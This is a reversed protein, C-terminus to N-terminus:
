RADGKPFRVKDPTANLEVVVRRLIEDRVRGARRPEVLYRVIAELWTNEAVRFRVVPREQVELQDVATRALLERYVRVERLMAEGVVDTAVRRMTAAVHELDADYGIQVKVESWIYPFLPWSYNYVPQSLVTANPLRILIGSPHDGSLYRGGFEWLTTELYSVEIVDGQADGIRVRDGVRYPAKVLLYIWGIFSTIPTQLAFGLVLSLLGLSLAAAYWNAFLLSLLVLTVAVGALLRVVRRVNYRAAVDTIRGLVYIELLEVLAAIAVVLLGGVVLRGATDGLDGLARAASRTRLAYHLVGFLVLLLLHAGLRARQAGGARAPPTPALERRVDERAELRSVEAAPAREGEGSPDRTSM